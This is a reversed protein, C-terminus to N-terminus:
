LNNTLYKTVEELTTMLLSNVNLPTEESIWYGFYGLSGGSGNQFLRIMGSTLPTGDETNPDKHVSWVSYNHVETKGNDWYLKTIGKGLVELKTVSQKEFINM